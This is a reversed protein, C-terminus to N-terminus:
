QTKVEGFFNRKQMGTNIYIGIIYPTCYHGFLEWNTSNSLETSLMM